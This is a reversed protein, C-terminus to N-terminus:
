DIQGEAYSRKILGTAQQQPEIAHAVDDLGELSLAGALFWRAHDLSAGGVRMAVRYLARAADLTADVENILRIVDNPDEVERLLADVEGDLLRRAGLENIPDVLKSLQTDTLM